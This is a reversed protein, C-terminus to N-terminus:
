GLSQKIPVNKDAKFSDFYTFSGTILRNGQNPPLRAGNLQEFEGDLLDSLQNLDLTYSSQKNIYQQNHQDIIDLTQEFKHLRNLNILFIKNQILHHISILVFYPM